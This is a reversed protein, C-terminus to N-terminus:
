LGIFKLVYKSTHASFILTVAEPFRLMTLFQLMRSDLSSWALALLESFHLSILLEKAIGWAFPIIFAMFQLKALLFWKIAEAFFKTFFTYIGSHQFDLYNNLLAQLLDSISM